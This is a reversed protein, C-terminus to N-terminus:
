SHKDAPGFQEPSTINPSHQGHSESRSKAGDAVSESLRLRRSPLLM